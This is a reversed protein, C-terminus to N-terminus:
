GDLEKIMQRLLEHEEAVPSLGAARHYCAVFMRAMKESSPFNREMQAVGRVSLESRLREDKLMRRLADVLSQDDAPDFLLAAEGVVEPVCTSRAAVVPLRHQFAELIPLGLGEFVSPFVLFKARRFLTHLVDTDVSGVFRVQEGLELRAMEAEIKLWHEQFVRGTCVVRLRIGHQDRLRALARLLGLHNKTPWTMAPFLAFEEPLEPPLRDRAADPLAPIRPVRPIVAIKRAEIGYRLVIDQKVWRTATVVLAAKECGNRFLRDMWERERAGFADPQHYHPLGWPEYVFPRDTAFNHPYPFHVVSVGFPDLERDNARASRSRQWRASVATYARYAPPVLQGLPGLRRGLRAARSNPPIGASSFLRAVPGRNGLHPDSEAADPVYWSYTRPWTILRQNDSMFPRLKEAHGKLGILVFRGHTDLQGIASILSLLATETGGSVDAAIQSDIAATFVSADTM